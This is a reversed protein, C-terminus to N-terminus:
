RSTSMGKAKAQQFVTCRKMGACVLKKCTMTLRLSWILNGKKMSITTVIHQDMQVIRFWTMKLFIGAEIWHLDMCRWVLTKELYGLVLLFISVEFLNIALLKQTIKWMKKTEKKTEQPKTNSKSNWGLIFCVPPVGSRTSQYFSIHHRARATAAWIQPVLIICFDFFKM